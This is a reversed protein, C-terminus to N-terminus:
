EILINYKKLIEDLELAFSGDADNNEIKNLIAYLVQLMNEDTHKVVKIFDSQVASMNEFVDPSSLGTAVLATEPVKVLGVSKLISPAQQIIGNLLNNFSDNKEKIYNRELERRELEDNRKKLVDNTDILKKNEVDLRNREHVSIKMDMIDPFGLGFMNKSKKKKKKKPKTKVHESNNDDTNITFTDITKYVSGNKKRNIIQLNTHGKEQLNEFYEDVNEFQEIIATGAFNNCVKEGTDNDIITVAQYKDNQLRYILDQLKNM